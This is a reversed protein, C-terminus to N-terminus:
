DYEGEEEGEDEDEDEGEDEDEDWVDEDEDDEDDENDYGEDGTSDDLALNIRAILLDVAENNDDELDLHDRIDLLLRRVQREM